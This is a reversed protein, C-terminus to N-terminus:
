ARRGCCFGLSSGNSCTQSSIGHFKQWPPIGEWRPTRQQFLQVRNAGFNIARNEDERGFCFTRNSAIRHLHGIEIHKKLEAVEVAMKPPLSYREHFVPVEIKRCIKSPIDVDGTTAKESSPSDNLNAFPGLGFETSPQTCCSKLGRLCCLLSSRGLCLGFRLLLGFLCIRKAISRSAAQRGGTGPHSSSDHRTLHLPCM